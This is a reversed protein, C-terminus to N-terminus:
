FPNQFGFLERSSDRFRSLSLNINRWIKKQDEYTEKQDELRRLPIREVDMLGEIMKDTGYKSNVGPISIDSM